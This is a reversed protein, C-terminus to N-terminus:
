RVDESSLPLALFAVTGDTPPAASFAAVTAALYDALQAADPARSELEGYVNRLLAATLGATGDANRYAELRGYFASAIKQMRRTMGMDGAGQDRLADEFCHFLMNVFEQALAREGANDLAQLVAYGHLTVIDFRGNFSDPVHLDRYFAPARSREVVAVALAGAVERRAVAERMSKFM